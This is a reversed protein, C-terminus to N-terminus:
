VQRNKRINLCSVNFIKAAKSENNVKKQEQFLFRENKSTIGENTLFPIM